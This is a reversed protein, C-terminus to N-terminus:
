LPLAFTSPLAAEGIVAVTLLAKVLVVRLADALGDILPVDTVKLAATPTV